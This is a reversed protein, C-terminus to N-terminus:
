SFVSRVKGSFHKPANMHKHQIGTEEERKMEHENKCSFLLSIEFLHSSAVHSACELRSDCIQSDGKHRTM